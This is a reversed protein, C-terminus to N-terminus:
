IIFKFSPHFRVQISYRFYNSTGPHLAQFLVPDLARVPASQEPTFHRIVGILNVPLVNLSAKDGLYVRGYWVTIEM